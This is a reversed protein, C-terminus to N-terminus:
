ALGTQYMNTPVLGLIYLSAVSCLSTPEKIGHLMLTQHAVSHRADITIFFNDLLRCWCSNSHNLRMDVSLVSEEWHKGTFSISICWCSVKENRKFSPSSILSSPWIFSHTAKKKGIKISDDPSAGSSAILQLLARTGLPVAQDIRHLQSRRWICIVPFCRVNAFQM